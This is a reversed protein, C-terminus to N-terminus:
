FLCNTINGVLYTEDLTHDNECCGQLHKSSCSFGGLLPFTNNQHGECFSPDSQNCCGCLSLPKAQHACPCLTTSFRRTGGKLTKPSCGRKPSLISPIQTTQGGLRSQLKSKFPQCSRRPEPLVGLPIANRSEERSILLCCYWLCTTSLM